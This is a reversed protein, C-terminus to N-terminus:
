ITGHLISQRPLAEAIDPSQFDTYRNEPWVPNTSVTYSCLQVLPPSMSIIFESIRLLRCGKLRCKFQFPLKFQCSSILFYQSICHVTSSINQEVFYVNGIFQSCYVLVRCNNWEQSTLNCWCRDFRLIYFLFYCTIMSCVPHNSNQQINNGPGSLLLHQKTSLLLYM